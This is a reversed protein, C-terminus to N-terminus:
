NMDEESRSERLGFWEPILEWVELRAKRVADMFENKCVSCMKLGCTKQGDTFDTRELMEAAQLLTHLPDADRGCAIGGVSRLVNLHIFYFSEVCYVASSKGTNTCNTSPRDRLASELFTHIYVQAAERGLFTACLHDDETSFIPPPGRTGALIKSPGYRSLDYFASPLFADLSLEYALKLMLIPHPLTERPNYRGGSDIGDNERRDWQPLSTPWDIALRAICRERLHEIFYKTSLRLVAAIAVFDASTHKTFYIGDYLAILLHTFGFSSRAPPKQDVPQPVSFLDRFVESHRELQGHHVKFAASDAILVINGDAFWIDSRILAQRQCMHM